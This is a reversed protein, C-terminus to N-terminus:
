SLISLPRSISQASQYNITQLNEQGKAFTELLNTPFLNEYLWSLVPEQLNVSDQTVLSMDHSQNSGSKM